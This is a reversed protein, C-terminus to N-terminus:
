ATRLRGIVTKADRQRHAIVTGRHHELGCRQASMCGGIVTIATFM